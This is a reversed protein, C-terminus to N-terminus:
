FTISSITSAPTTEEEEGEKLEGLINRKSAAPSAQVRRISYDSQTDIYEQVRHYWNGNKDYRYDASAEEPKVKWPQRCQFKRSIHTKDRPQGKKNASSSSSAVYENCGSCQLNTPLPFETCYQIRRLSKLPAVKVPVEDKNSNNSSSRRSTRRSSLSATSVSM